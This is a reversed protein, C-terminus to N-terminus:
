AQSALVIKVVEVAFCIIVWILASVGVLRLAADITQPVLLAKAEGLRYFPVKELQVRLAGAAASMPWGANPSETRAHDRLMVQWSARGNRRSIFAAVVLLLATLRAPLLNIADDLRAAFKGMHEYKGRYGIMADLTNIVRYAIAGPIGLVLFYFLPAVFSDSANETVSEATASVMLPASLGATDREVLSHLRSRAEDLEKEVLLRKVELAVRRLERLSFTSKLVLAGLILYAVYSTDKLWTFFFYAPVAFLCVTFLTMVTGFAFQVAPRRNFGAKEWLSVLKGMWVVPHAFGPPEGLILDIVLAGALIIMTDLAKFDFDM